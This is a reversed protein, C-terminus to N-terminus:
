TSCVTIRGPISHGGATHRVARYAEDYWVGHPFVIGAPPMPSVAPPM